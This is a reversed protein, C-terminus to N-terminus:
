QSLPLVKEELRCSGRVCGYSLTGSDNRQSLEGLQPSHVRLATATREEDVDEEFAEANTGFPIPRKACMEGHDAAAISRCSSVPTGSSVRQSSSLSLSRPPFSENNAALRTPQSASAASSDRFNACTSAAAINTCSSVPTGSSVRQSSSLSLPRPPFSENNTALRAPQSASAASSDCLNACTSKLNRSPYCDVCPRNNQVCQCRVCRRGNKTGRM